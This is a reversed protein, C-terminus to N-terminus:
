VRFQQMLGQQHNALENLQRSVRASQEAQGSLSETVDRIAEVNRNIEEAVSSQEEAASAIQLNMESILNVAADIRELAAVAQQVQSVNDQALGHSGQMAQSVDRTGSQLDDIVQRIEEVSDQTRRALNRM